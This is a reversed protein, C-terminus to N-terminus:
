TCTKGIKGSFKSVDGVTTIYGDTNLDLRRLLPDGSVPRGIKGSYKFVDAMTVSKDMNIDLPWADDAGVVDPCNDLPDTSLYVEVVDSFGDNDDDLDCADGPGDGDTDTQDPNAVTPCNDCTDGWVDEDTNAQDPNYVHPCNDCLNGLGDGDRDLQNPNYVTVCNDCTDGWVDEDSNAQDPNYTLACNDNDGTKPPLYGNGACIGDGDADDNLDNTCVDCVDGAGDGDSDAQDPSSINPCNDCADGLGDSDNNAQDPNSVIRCNDATDLITDNDDDDDCADGAGDGDSDAQDPNYVSCNDCADGVDDGDSDTQDPNPVDPCNDNLDLLGDEDPDLDHVFVDGTNNTDGPMLNPAYSSFAVYRGDASIAPKEQESNAQNGASNVSVRSTRGTQLDHVFVDTQSNTDGPVLNSGWSVFAVYRGDASIDSQKSMENSHLEGTSPDPVSACTSAGTERDYVLISDAPWYDAPNAGCRCDSDFSVYRGDPTITPYSDPVLCQGGQVRFSVLTTTGTQRDHVFVDGDHEPWQAPTDDPALNNAQSTFAVYRGDASIAPRWYSPGDGQEGTSSVSVRETAIAAFEDFIRDGDTDRDHVFIDPCTGPDTSGGGTYFWPCTNTDGAVLNSADSQFAVYRGDGSIAPSGSWGNAQGGGFTGWVSVRKTVGTQRDNVFIDSVGNTDGLVLNTASSVFAVYRGDASISGGSSLGNAEAGTSDVSVRETVGTQRDHVFVDRAGNTDNPVLNSADSAFAVYRGDPTMSQGSSSGNGENGASNVSVREVLGASASNPGSGVLVIALAVLGVLVMRLTKM